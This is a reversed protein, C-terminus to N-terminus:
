QRRKGISEGREQNNHLLGNFHRFEQATVLSYQQKVSLVGMPRQVSIVKWCVQWSVWVKARNFANSM